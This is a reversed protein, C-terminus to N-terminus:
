RTYGWVQALAVALVSPTLISLAIGFALVVGLRLRLKRLGEQFALEGNPKGDLGELFAIRQAISGHRWSPGNSDLGNYRAVNELAEAFIRIGESQLTLGVEPAPQASFPGSSSSLPLCETANM